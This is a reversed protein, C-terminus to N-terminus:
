PALECRGASADAGNVVGRGEALLAERKRRRETVLFPNRCVILREGLYDSRPWTAIM